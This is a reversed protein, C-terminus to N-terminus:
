QSSGHDPYKQKGNTKDPGEPQESGDLHTFEGCKPTGQENGQWDAVSKHQTKNSFEEGHASQSNKTQQGRLRQEVCSKKAVLCATQKYSYKSIQQNKGTEKPDGNRIDQTILDIPGRPARKAPATQMNDRQNVAAHNECERKGVVLLSYRRDAVASLALLNPRLM